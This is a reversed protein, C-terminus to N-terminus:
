TPTAFAGAKEMTYFPVVLGATGILYDSVRATIACGCDKLAPMARAVMKDTVNAHVYDSEFPTHVHELTFNQPNPYNGWGNCHLTVHLPQNGDGVFHSWIGIDDLTQAERRIRDKAYNARDKATPAYRAGVRDLRWLALDKRVLEYGSLISYPLYGAKYQDS